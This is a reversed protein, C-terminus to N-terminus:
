NIEIERGETTKKSDFSGREIETKVLKHAESVKNANEQERVYSPGISGEGEDDVILVDVLIKKPYM